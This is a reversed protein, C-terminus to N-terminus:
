WRYCILGMWVARIQRDIEVSLSPSETVVGEMNVFSAAQRYNIDSTLAINLCDSRVRWLRGVIIAM